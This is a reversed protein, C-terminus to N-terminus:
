VESSFFFYKMETNLIKGKLTSDAGKCYLWVDGNRDQLIVSQRKRESTFELTELLKYKFTESRFEVLIYNDEDIGKFEVGCFKAFNVLAMEDPSASKSIIRM